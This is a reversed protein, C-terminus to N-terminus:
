RVAKRARRKREPAPVPVPAPPPEPSLKKKIHEAAVQGVATGIAAVSAVLVAKGLEKLFPVLALQIM